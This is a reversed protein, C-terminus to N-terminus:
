VVAPQARQPLIIRYDTGDQQEFWDSSMDYENGTAYPDFPPKTEEPVTTKPATTPAVTTPPETPKATTPQLTTPETQVTTEEAEGSKVVACAAISVALILAIVLALVTKKKNM